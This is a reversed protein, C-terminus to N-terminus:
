GSSFRDRKQLKGQTQGSGTKTFHDNKCIVPEFLGNKSVALLPYHISRQTKDHCILDLTEGQKKGDCVRLL